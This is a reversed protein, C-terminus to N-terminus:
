TLLWGVRGQAGNILREQLRSARRRELAYPESCRLTATRQSPRKEAHALAQAVTDSYARALGGAGLKV